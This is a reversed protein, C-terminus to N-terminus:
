WLRWRGDRENRQSAPVSLRVLFCLMDSKMVLRTLPRTEIKPTCYNPIFSMAKQATILFQFTERTLTMTMTNYCGRGIMIQLGQYVRGELIM